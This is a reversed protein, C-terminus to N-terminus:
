GNQTYEEYLRAALDADMTEEILPLLAMEEKQVHVLMRECLELGLQRFTEWSRDNFGGAAAERALRAIQACIPRMAAHEDALHAGIADDGAADLYTFLQKEEFDFHRDVEAAVGTSLDSLLRAVEPAGVDPPGRRRAALLQELREMLAITALHEDHLAQSIRNVFTM